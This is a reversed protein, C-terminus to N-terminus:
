LHVGREPTYGRKYKAYVHTRSRNIASQGMKSYWKFVEVDWLGQNILMNCKYMVSVGTKVWLCCQVLLELVWCRCSCCHYLHEDLCCLCLEM